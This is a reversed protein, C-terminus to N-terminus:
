KAIFAFRFLCLLSLLIYMKTGIYFFLSESAVYGASFLYYFNNWYYFFSGSFFYYSLFAVPKNLKPYFPNPINLLPILSNESLSFPPPNNEAFLINAFFSGIGGFVSYDFGIFLINPVEWLM